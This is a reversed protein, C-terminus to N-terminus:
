AGEVQNLSDAIDQIIGNLELLEGMMQDLYQGTMEIGVKQFADMDPSYMLGDNGAGRGIMRSLADALHVITIIKMELPKVTPPTKSPKHHFRITDLLLPPLNWKEAVRTGVLCHNFGLVHEEATIFDVREQIAIREIEAYNAGVFEGLVIKGIDRLLGATFAREPDPLKERAAIHKAYVACTLSNYWLDGEEQAYGPIPRNLAVKALITYTMSKLTSFGLIAVAEKVTGIRRSFGYAASNCLKLIQSTFGADVRIVEALKDASTGEEELMRSVQLAAQPLEPLSDVKKIIEQLPIKSM